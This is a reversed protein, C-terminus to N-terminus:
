SKDVNKRRRTREDFFARLLIGSVVILVLLVVPHITPPPEDAEIGLVKVVLVLILSTFSMAFFFFGVRLSWIDLGQLVMGPSKLFMSLVTPEPESRAEEFLPASRLIAKLRRGATMDVILSLILISAALVAAFSTSIAGHSWALFVILYCVAFVTMSVMKRMKLKEVEEFDEMTLVIARAILSPRYAVTGDPLHRMLREKINKANM